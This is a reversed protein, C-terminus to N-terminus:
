SILFDLDSGDLQCDKGVNVERLGGPLECYCYVHYGHRTATVLHGNSRLATLLACPEKQDVDLCILGPM